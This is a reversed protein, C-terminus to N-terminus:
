ATLARPGSGSTTVPRGLGVRGGAAYGAGRGSDSGGGMTARDRRFSLGDERLKREILARKTVVLSTGTPRHRTREASLERLRECVRICFGEFFGRQFAPFEMRGSTGRLPQDMFASMAGREAAGRLMESLYVAMERDAPLGCFVVAGDQLFAKTETLESIAKATFRQVPHIRGGRPEARAYDAAEPSREHLETEDLDHQMLLRAAAAAAAQAEAESAASDAAKARLARIRAIIKQRHDTM